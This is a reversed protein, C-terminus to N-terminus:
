SGYGISILIPKDQKSAQEFANPGFAFWHVPNHAHQLLYPSKEESLHNQQQDCASPAHALVSGHL